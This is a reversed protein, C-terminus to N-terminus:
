NRTPCAGCVPTWMAPFIWKKPCAKKRELELVEEIQANFDIPEAKLISHNIQNIILLRSLIANLRAASADLKDFYDLAMKDKVDMMAVNCIGKLNALPGRIDHSTKYIFNDLEDNVKTLSENAEVLEVTREEVEKELELNAKSLQGNQWQITKQAAAM